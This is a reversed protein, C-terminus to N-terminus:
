KTETMSRSTLVYVQWLLSTAQKKVVDMFWNQVLMRLVRFSHTCTDNDEQEMTKDDEGGAFMNFDASSGDAGELEDLQGVELM